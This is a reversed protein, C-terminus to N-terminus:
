EMDEKDFAPNAYAAYSEPSSVSEITTPKEQPATTTIVAIVPAIIPGNINGVQPLSPSTPEKCWRAFPNPIQAFQGKPGIIRCLSQFFFTSFAWSTTMVLMLFTGLQQYAIVKASMIAAGSLFTTIAAMAVANGVRRFSEKVRLVSDEHSSLRYAVGYHIVFDISLGVALSITISELINLEWGLLVLIAVTFFITIAITIIAYFTIVVNLSTVLMILLAVSLSVAIAIYTGTSLAKQLDYFDFLGTFWGTKVGPPATALKADMFSEITKYFKDTVAYSATWPQTSDFRVMFAKINNNEDFYPVDLFSWNNVYALRSLLKIFFPYCQEFVNPTYPPGSFGCCPKLSLSYCSQRMFYNFLDITCERQKYNDSMFTQNRITTCIDLMWTQVAQSSLNFSMDYVLPFDSKPDLHNGNDEGVVGWVMTIPQGSGSSEKEKRLFRFQYKLTQVYREIPHNSRFVQFEQSSPLELKPTIFVIVIGAIGLGTFIIIWLPWLRSILFPLCRLFIADSCKKMYYTITSYIACCEFKSCYKQSTWEILVIVAPIWTVMLMFNCVIATGSFVGFCKIATIESVYNAFFASATTLSTVFISVAAHRMTKYIWFRINQEPYEEKMQSWTDFFIFIDDAGVAILILFSLINMFPFYPFRFVIHYLFYALILSFVVNLITAITVVVSRLYLCLAILILAIALIFLMMDEIVYADFLIWKVTNDLGAIRVIGNDLNADELHERYFRVDYGSCVDVGLLTYTLKESNTKEDLFNFDVMLHLIIYIYAGDLGQCQLPVGTCGTQLCIPVLQGSHYYMACQKLSVLVDAVDTDTLDKCDKNVMKGVIYPLSPGRCTPKNIYPSHLILRDEM